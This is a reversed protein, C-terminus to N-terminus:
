GHRDLREDYLEERTWRRRAPVPEEEGRALMRAKEREWAARDKVGRGSVVVARDIPERILQAESVGRAAATRKLKKEQEVAIYIQKRLM